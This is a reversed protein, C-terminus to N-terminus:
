TTEGDRNEFDWVRKVYDTERRLQRESEDGLVHISHYGCMGYKGQCQDTSKPWVGTRRATAIANCKWIVDSRFEIYDAQTRSTISRTESGVKMNGATTMCLANIIAGAVKSNSLQEAGWCYGTIQNNPNFQLFYTSGLQSTTKHDVVYITSQASGFQVILDIIGGYEIEECPFGCNECNGNEDAEARCREHHLTNGDADVMAPPRYEYLGMQEDKVYWSNECTLWAQPTLSLLFPVEVALVKFTESPFARIYELMLRQARELTRFDDKPHDPNWAKEIAAVAEKMRTVSDKEDLLGQYWAQLGAHMAIGHGLAGGQFRSSWHDEMSEKYKLACTDFASLMTNDVKM